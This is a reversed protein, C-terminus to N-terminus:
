RRFHNILWLILTLILSLVLCSALPIYVKWNKGGFELDGPLKFIGLRGLGLVLLGIVVLVLGALILWRGIHQPGLEM